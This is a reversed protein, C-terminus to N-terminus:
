EKGKVAQQSPTRGTKPLANLIGASESTKGISEFVLALNVQAKEFFPEVKGVKQYHFAATHPDKKASYAVGLNYNVRGDNPWRKEAQLLTKIAEELKAAKYYVHGKLLFNNLKAEDTNQPLGDLFALARDYEAINVLSQVYQTSAWKSEPWHECYEKLFSGIMDFRKKESWIGILKKSSAEHGSLEKVLRLLEVEALEYQKLRIYTDALKERTLTNKAEIELIRKYTAILENNRNNAFHVETLRTLAVVDNPHAKLILALVRDADYWRKLKIFIEASLSQYEWNTPFEEVLVRTDTNAFDWQNKGAYAKARFYRATTNRPSKKLLNSLTEIAGDFNALKFQTAGRIEDTKPLGPNLKEIRDTEALADTFMGKKFYIEALSTHIEVNFPNGTRLYEKLVSSAEDFNNTNGLVRALSLAASEFSEKRDFALRYQIAAKKFDGANEFALGQAMAGESNSAAFCSASLVISLFIIKM